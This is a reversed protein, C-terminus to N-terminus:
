QAGNDSTFNNTTDNLATNIINQEKKIVAQKLVTILEPQLPYSDTEWNYDVEDGPYFLVADINIDVTSTDGAGIRVYMVNDIIWARKVSKFYQDKQYNRDQSKTCMLVAENNYRIIIGSRRNFYIIKPLEKKYVNYSVLTFTKSSLSQFNEENVSRGSDTFQLLLNAREAAMWSRILRKSILDNNNSHGGRLSNLISYVIEKETKM